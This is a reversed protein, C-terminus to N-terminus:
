SLPVTQAEISTLLPRGESTKLSLAPVTQTQLLVNPSLTSPLISEALERRAEDMSYQWKFRCILRINVASQVAIYLMELRSIDIGAATVLVGRLKDDSAITVFDSACRVGTSELKAYMEENAYVLLIAQDVWDVIEELGFPTTVVLTPINTTAMNQVNEIGEQQLRGQHWISLGELESLRTEKAIGGSQGLTKKATATLWDIGMDPFFGITFTVVSVATLAPDLKMGAQTLAVAVGTGVIGGVIFALMFRGAAFIYVTPTLDYVLFRRYILSFSYLYAGVWGWFMFRGVYLVNDSGPALGFLNIAEEIVGVWLGNRLVFPHASAYLVFSLLCIALLPWFYHRLTYEQSMITDLEDSRTIGLQRLSQRVRERKEPYRLWRYAIYSVLM